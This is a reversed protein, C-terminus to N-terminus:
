ARPESRDTVAYPLDDGMYATSRSVEVEVIRDQRISAPLDRFQAATLAKVIVHDKGWPGDYPWEVYEQPLLVRNSSGSLQVTYCRSRRASQGAFAEVITGAIVGDLAKIPLGRPDPAGRAATWGARPSLPVAKLEAM